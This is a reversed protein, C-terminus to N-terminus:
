NESPREIHDIVLAEVKARAPELKLGLQEQLATIISVGPSEQAGASAAAQSVAAGNLTANRAEDPSWSLTFDYSGLLGTEDIV